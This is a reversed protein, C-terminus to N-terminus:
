NIKNKRLDMIKLLYKSLQRPKKECLNKIIVNRNENIDIDLQTFFIERNQQYLNCDFLFHKEDEVDSRCINCIREEIKKNVFRGLEIELPLTGLRFQALISREQQTLNM